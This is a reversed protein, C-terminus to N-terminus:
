HRRRFLRALLGDPKRVAFIRRDGFRRVETRPGYRGWSFGFGVEPARMDVVQFSPDLERAFAALAADDSALCTAHDLVGPNKRWVEFRRDEHVDDIASAHPPTAADIPSSPM